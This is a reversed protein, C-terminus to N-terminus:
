ILGFEETCDPFMYDKIGAAEKTKENRMWMSTMPCLKVQAYRTKEVGWVNKNVEDGIPGNM